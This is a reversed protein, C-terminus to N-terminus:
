KRYFLRIDKTSHNELKDIAEDETGAWHSYGCTWCDVCWDNTDEDFNKSVIHANPDASVVISDPATGLGIRVSQDFGVQGDRVFAVTDTQNIIYVDGTGACPAEIVPMGMFQFGRDKDLSWYKGDHYGDTETVLANYTETDVLIASKEIGRGRTHLLELATTMREIVGTDPSVLTPTPSAESILKYMLMDAYNSTDGIFKEDKIKIDISMFDTELGDKAMVPISVANAGHHAENLSIFHSIRGRGLFSRSTIPKREGNVVETAGTFAGNFLNERESPSLIMRKKDKKKMNYIGGVEAIAKNLMEETLFNSKNPDGWQSGPKTLFDDM